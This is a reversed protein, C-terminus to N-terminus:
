LKYIYIKKKSNLYGLKKSTNPNFCTEILEFEIKDHLHKNKILKKILKSKIKNSITEDLSNPLFSLIDTEIDIYPKNYIKYLLPNPYLNKYGYNFRQQAWINDTILEQYLSIGLPKPTSGLMEVPNWDSM